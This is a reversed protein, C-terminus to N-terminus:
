SSHELCPATQEATFNDSLVTTGCADFLQYPPVCTVVRCTVGGSCAIHTNCQGYRFRACCVHRKDCSATDPCHCSCPLCSSSCFNGCGSSCECRPHCDLYYRAAKQGNVLCLSSSAAKWWGGVFHGPPCKNIGRFITCCFATYGDNCGAAPGCIAAYATMPRFIFDMPAVVLATVALTMRSLFDRRSPEAPSDFRHAARELLRTM